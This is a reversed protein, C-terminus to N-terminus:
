FALSYSSYGESFRNASTNSRVQLHNSHNRLALPAFLSDLVSGNLSTAFTFTQGHHGDCTTMVRSTVCVSSCCGRESVQLQAAVSQRRVKVMLTRGWWARKKEDCGEVNLRLVYKVKEEEGSAWKMQFPPPAKKKRFPKLFEASSRQVRPSVKVILNLILSENRGDRAREFKQLCTPSLYKM